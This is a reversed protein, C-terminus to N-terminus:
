TSALAACATTCLFVRRVGSQFDRVLDQRDDFPVDGDMRIFPEGKDELAAGLLDLVGSWSSFVVVSRDGAQEIASLVSKIKPTASSVFPHCLKCFVCKVTDDADKIGLERRLAEANAVMFDKVVDACHSCTRHGCAHDRLEFKSL